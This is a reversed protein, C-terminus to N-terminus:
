TKIEKIRKDKEGLEYEFQMKHANIEKNMLLREKDMEEMIRENLHTEKEFLDKKLARLQSIENM